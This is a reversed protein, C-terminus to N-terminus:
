YRWWILIRCGHFHDPANIDRDFLEKGEKSLIRVHEITSDYGTNEDGAHRFKKCRKPRSATDSCDGNANGADPILETDSEMFFSGDVEKIIIQPENLSAPKKLWLQIQCGDCHSPPNPFLNEGAETQVRVGEIPRAADQAKYVHPRSTARVEHQLDRNFSFELSGGEIVVPPPIHEIKQPSRKQLHAAKSASSRLRKQTSNQNRGEVTGMLVICLIPVGWRTFQQVATMGARQRYGKM